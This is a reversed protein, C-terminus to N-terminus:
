KGLEIMNLEKQWHAQQKKHIEILRLLEEEMIKSTKLGALYKAVSVGFMQLDSAVFRKTVEPAYMGPNIGREMEHYARLICEHLWYKSPMIYTIIDYFLDKNLRIKKAYSEVSNVFRETSLDGAMHRAIDYLFRYVEEKNESTENQHCELFLKAMESYFDLQRYEESINDIRKLEKAIKTLRESLKDLMSAFERLDEM